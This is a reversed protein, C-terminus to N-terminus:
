LEYYEKLRSAENKKVKKPLGKEKTDAFEHLTKKSMKKLGANKKYLKEPHHEAIAMAKRQAKSKAPM